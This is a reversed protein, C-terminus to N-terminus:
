LCKTIKIQDCQVRRVSQISKADSETFKDLMSGIEYVFNEVFFSGKSM